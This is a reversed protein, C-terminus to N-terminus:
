SEFVIYCISVCYLLNFCLIAFYFVVACCFGVVVCVVDCFLLFWFVFVLNSFVFGLYM